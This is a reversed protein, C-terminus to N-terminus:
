TSRPSHWTLMPSTAAASANAVFAPGWRTSIHQSALRVEDVLAEVSAHLEDKSEDEVPPFAAAISEAAARRVNAILFALDEPEQLEIKRYGATTATTMKAPSETEAAM